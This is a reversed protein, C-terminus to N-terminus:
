CQLTPQQVLSNRQLASLQRGSKNIARMQTCVTQQLKPHLFPLLFEINQIKFSTQFSESGTLAILNGCKFFDMMDGEKSSLNGDTAKHKKKAKTDKDDNEFHQV